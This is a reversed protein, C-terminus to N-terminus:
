EGRWWVQNPCNKNMDSAISDKEVGGQVGLGFPSSEPTSASSRSLGIAVGAGLGPFPLAVGADRPDDKTLLRRRDENAGEEGLPSFPPPTVPVTAGSGLTDFSGEDM